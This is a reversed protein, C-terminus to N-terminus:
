ASLKSISFGLEEAMQLAVEERGKSEIRSVFDVSGGEAGCGFCKFVNSEVLVM